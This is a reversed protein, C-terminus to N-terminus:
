SPKRTSEQSASAAPRATAALVAPQPELTAIAARKAQVRIHSYRQLMRQSVHGALARITGESVNPNEALRSVFTHRLDHWRYRLGAAGCANYWATKWSAIPRSSDVHSMTPERKNGAIGVEHCPFVYDEPSKCAVRSLWLTLIACARSTLPVTRGTGAETKSKAVILEGSTIAGDKWQLSLQGLRLERVESARLGSDISLIFLPLLAHARSAQVAALLKDEHEKPVSRGVDHTERLHSVRDSIPGWLGFHRLIGRLTGVEYNVTRPAKKAEIRKQQYSAIDQASIDCVLRTGFEAKLEEICQKYRKRSKEALAGKTALWQRAAFSFLPMRERRPIRNVAIELERRRSREADRALTKSETKASERIPQGCFRFKFWWVNGRKYLSMAAESEQRRGEAQRGAQWERSESAGEAQKHGRGPLGPLLLGATRRSDQM